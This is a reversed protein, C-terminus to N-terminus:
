TFCMEHLRQTKENKVRCVRKYPLWANVVAVDVLHFFLRHDLEAVIYDQWHTWCTCVAWTSITRAEQKMEDKCWRKATMLPEAGVFTSLFKVARNDIDYAFGSVGALVFVKYGWKTKKPM